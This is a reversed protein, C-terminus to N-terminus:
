QQPKMPGCNPKQQQTGQDHGYFISIIPEALIHLPVKIDDRSEEHAAMRCNVFDYM